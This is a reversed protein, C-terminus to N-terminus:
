NLTEPSRGAIAVREFALLQGPEVSRLPIGLYTHLRDLVDLRARLTNDALGRLNRGWHAYDTVDLDRM